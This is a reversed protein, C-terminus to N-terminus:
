SDVKKMALAVNAGGVGRGGILVTSGVLPSAEKQVLHLGYDLNLEECNITPPILSHRLALL